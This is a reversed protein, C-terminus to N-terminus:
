KDMVISYEALDIRKGCITCYFDEANCDWSWNHKHKM